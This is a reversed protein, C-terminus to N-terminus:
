DTKNQLADIRRLLYVIIARLVAPSLLDFDDLEKNDTVIIHDKSHWVMKEIWM